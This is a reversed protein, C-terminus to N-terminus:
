NRVSHGTLRLFVDELTALQSQVATVHVRHTALCELVDDLLSEGSGHVLLTRSAAEVRTVSRCATLLATAREDDTAVAVM